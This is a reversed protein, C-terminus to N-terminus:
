GRHSEGRSLGWSTTLLFLIFLYIFEQREVYPGDLFTVTCVVWARLKVERRCSALGVQCGAAYGGWCAPQM